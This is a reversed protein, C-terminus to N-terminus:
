DLNIEIQRFLKRYQRVDFLDIEIQRATQRYFGNHPTLTPVLGSDSILRLEVWTSRLYTEDSDTYQMQKEFHWGTAIASGNNWDRFVHSTCRGYERQLSRFLQGLDDTYPTYWDSDGFQYGKTENVSTERIQLTYQKKDM